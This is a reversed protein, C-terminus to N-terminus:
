RTGIASVKDPGRSIHEGCDRCLGYLELKHYQISFGLRRVVQEQLAEIESNAFETIKGCETCIIHDHHRESSAHEFLARGDGFQREHALGADKLLKLTRYVTVLGIRPHRGGVRRYLGEASVHTTTGFFARAILERQRTAKLGARNLYQKFQLLKDQM